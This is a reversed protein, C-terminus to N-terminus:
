EEESVQAEIWERFTQTSEDSRRSYLRPVFYEGPRPQYPKKASGATAQDVAAKFKHIKRVADIEVAEDDRKWALLGYEDTYDEITQFTDALLHDWEIWEERDGTPRGTLPDRHGFWDDHM